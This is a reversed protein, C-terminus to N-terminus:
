PPYAAGEVYFLFEGGGIGPPSTGPTGPPANLQMQDIYKKKPITQAHGDAFLANSANNHVWVVMSNPSQGFNRSPDDDIFANWHSGWNKDSWRSEQFKFDPDRIEGMMILRSPSVRFSEVKKPRYTDDPDILPAGGWTGDPNWTGRGFYSKMEYNRFGAYNFQAAKKDDTPYVWAAGIPKPPAYNMGPCLFPNQKATWGRDISITSWDLGTYSQIIWAFIRHSRLPSGNQFDLDDNPFGPWAGVDCPPYWGTDSKVAEIWLGFQHERSLCDVTQAVVKAKALAPLLLAILLAIISIVVLLEVLTFGRRCETQKRHHWSM